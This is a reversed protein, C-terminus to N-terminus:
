YCSTSSGCYPYAPNGYQAGAVCCMSSPPCCTSQGSLAYPACKVYGGACQEYCRGSSCLNTTTASDARCASGCTGCNNRDNSLNKCTGGCNTFGASCRTGCTGATCTAEEGLGAPCKVGCGGCNNPDTQTTVCSSGCLARGAGCSPKCAGAVCAVSGGTPTDCRHGCAGCNRADTQADVCTGNCYTASGSCGAGCVGKTCTALSGAAEPAPCKLGCSGCNLVDTDLDFCGKPCDTCEPEPEPAAGDPEEDTSPTGLAPGRDADENPASPDSETELGTTTTTGTNCAVLLAVATYVISRSVLKM